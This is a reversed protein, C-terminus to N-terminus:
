NKVVNNFEEESYPLCHAYHMDFQLGVEKGVEHMDYTKVKLIKDAFKVRVNFSEGMYSSSLIKGKYPSDKLDVIDIDEPRIMLNLLEGVKFKKLSLTKPIDFKLNEYSLYKANTYECTLFNAQGIFKAIWMNNPADYIKKPSDFQQVHGKSMVVVKNSLHLAEEQDHTVFIFTLKLKDHIQKLEVQMQQRVKADLASLPEDLLLIDPEIVVSRALAVRQQMGGSLDSPYKEENGELGVMNIVNKVRQDIEKKTLKRTTFRTQYQDLKLEPYNEWFSRQSVLDNIKKDFKALEDRFEERFEYWKLLNLASKQWENLGSFSYNIPKWEDTFHNEIRHLWQKYRNGLDIKLIPYDGGISKDMKNKLSKIADDFNKQNKIKAIAENNVLEGIKQEFKFRKFNLRKINKDLDKIEHKAKRVAAKYVKEEEKKDIDSLNKLPKRMVKLGYAINQYVNMNPFLAYDQFVTATPRQNIPLNQIDVGDVLIRGSTPNEFGALMKLLTTKGCGSPGLITIFDGRNISFNINEVATYGDDYTKNINEFKIFGKKIM